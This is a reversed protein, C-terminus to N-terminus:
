NRGDKSNETCMECACEMVRKCAGDGLGLRLEQISEAQNPRKQCMEQSLVLSEGKHGSVIKQGRIGAGASTVTKAMNRPQWKGLGMRSVIRLAIM